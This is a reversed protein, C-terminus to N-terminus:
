PATVYSEVTVSENRGAQTWAVTVTCDYQNVTSGNVIPCTNPTVTFVNSVANASGNMFSDGQDIPATTASPLPQNTQKGNRMADLYQQGVAVAQVQTANVQLQQYGYPVMSAVALIIATMIVISILVEILSMGRSQTRRSPRVIPSYMM